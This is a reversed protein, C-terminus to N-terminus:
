VDLLSCARLLDLVGEELQGVVVVRVLLATLGLMIQLCELFYRIGVTNHALFLFPLPIIGHPLTLWIRFLRPLLLLFLLSSIILEVLV